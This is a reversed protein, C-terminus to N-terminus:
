EPWARELFPTTISLDDKIVSADECSWLPASPHAEVYPSPSVCAHNILTKRASAPIYRGQIALLSLIHLKLAAIV